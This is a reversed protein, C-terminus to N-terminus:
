EVDRPADPVAEADSDAPVVASAGARAQQAREAALLKVPDRRYVVGPDTDAVGPASIAVFLKWIAVGLLVGGALLVARLMLAM